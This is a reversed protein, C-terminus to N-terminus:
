QDLKPWLFSKAANRYFQWTRKTDHQLFWSVSQISTDIDNALLYGHQYGMDSPSGELHVYIWGNRNERSAKALRDTTAPHNSCSYFATAGIFFATLLKRM